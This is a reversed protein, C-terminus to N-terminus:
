SRSFVYDTSQILKDGPRLIANPFHGHNPADPWIQAELCLGSFAGYRQGTLGPVPSDLKFGCYFQLGPETTWVEMTVGSYPSSLLAVARKDMRADSLCFNHDYLVQEGACRIPRMDRFDFPTGAVAAVDGTPIQDGDVPLVHDAAIMLEHDLVNSRGDLNFYSHHAINCPTPRDCEAEHVVSLVGGPKLQYTCAIRCAGPYGMHGHPDDIEFRVRDSQLEAVRWPRKGIGLAGGHLHHRGNQNRDLQYTRGDIRFTAEAIRNAFRGATAGFYPSHNEYHSFADYGLVLPSAHGTLRLDRLAAGWSILSACLGGGELEVQYVPKGDRTHGFLQAETM